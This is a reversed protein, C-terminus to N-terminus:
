GLKFRLEDRERKLEEYAAVFLDFAREAGDKMSELELALEARAADREEVCELLLAKAQREARVADNAHDRAQNALDAVAQVAAVPGDTHITVGGFALQADKAELQARLDTIVSAAQELDKKQEEIRIRLPEFTLPTERAAYAAWCTAARDEPRIHRNSRTELELAISERVEERAKALLEDLERKAFVAAAAEEFTSM